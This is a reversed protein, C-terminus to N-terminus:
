PGRGPYDIRVRLSRGKADAVNVIGQYRIQRLNSADYTIVIPTLVLRLLASQPEVVVVKSKRGAAEKDTLNRAADMYAVFRYYDLRAPIIMYFPIRKGADLDKWHDKLFVNFGGNVVCPEPVKLAKEKPAAKLSDRYYVRVVDGDVRSGEEYGNRLDKFVYDPKYPFRTYDLDREAMLRGQPDKFLSHTGVFKGDATRERHEESYAPRMEHEIDVAAGGYPAEAQVGPAAPAAGCLGALLPALTLCRDFANSFIM